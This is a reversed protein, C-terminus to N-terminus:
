KIHVETLIFAPSGNPYYITKVVHYRFQPNDEIDKPPLAFLQHLAPNYSDLSGTRCKECDHPAYFKIFIDPQNFYSSMILEDYEGEHAVFYSVMQRPGYQWGWFDASQKPYQVFYFQLFFVFNAAISLVVCMSLITQARFGKCLKVTVVIGYTILLVFLPAGIISRGTFPPNATVAGAIPYLVLWYLLLQSFKKKFTIIAAIFGVVVFPITVPLLPLLGNMFHREIPTDEGQIFYNPSLQAFYNKSFLQATQDLPLHQSLISVDNFRATAEGTFFSLALPVSMLLFITFGLFVQRWHKFLQKWYIIGIGVLLLPVLLKPPQYTYLTFGSVIFAPIIYTKKKTGKIFLFIAATFFAAYANLEFGIRNYHLLWPMTTAVFASLLGAKRSFVEKALLYLFVITILGYLASQFRVAFETLGFLKIFPIASYIFLPNKYDGFSQFFMPHAVGFEDRGTTLLEYANYAISAEDCFFGAPVQQLQITRVVFALILITSFTFVSLYKVIFQRNM